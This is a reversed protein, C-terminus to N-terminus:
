EIGAESEAKAWQARQEGTLKGGGAQLQGGMKIRQEPSLWKPVTGLYRAIRTCAEAEVAAEANALAGAEILALLADMEASEEPTPGPKRNLTITVGPKAARAKAINARAAEVKATSTSKGGIRGGRAGAERTDM